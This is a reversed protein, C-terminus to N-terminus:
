LEERYPEPLPRWAIIERPLIRSGDELMYGKLFKNPDPNFYRGCFSRKGLTVVGHPIFIQGFEDCGICPFEALRERTPIWEDARM